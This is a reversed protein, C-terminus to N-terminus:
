LHDVKHCVKPFDPAKLNGIVNLGRILHYQMYMIKTKKNCKCKTGKICLVAMASWFNLSWSTLHQHIIPLTGAELMSLMKRKHRWDHGTM